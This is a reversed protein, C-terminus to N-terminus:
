HLNQCNHVVEVGVLVGVDQIQVETFREVFDVMSHQQLLEVKVADMSFCVTPDGVNEPIPRLMCM